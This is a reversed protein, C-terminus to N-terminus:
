RTPPEKDKEKKNELEDMRTQLKENQKILLDLKQNIGQVYEPLKKAKTIADWTDPAQWQWADDINCTGFTQGMCNQVNAAQEVTYYKRLDEPVANRGDKWHKYGNEDVFYRHGNLSEPYDSNLFGFM